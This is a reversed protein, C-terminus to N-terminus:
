SICQIMKLFQFAFSAVPRLSILKESVSKMGQVFLHTKVKIKLYIKLYIGGEETDKHLM